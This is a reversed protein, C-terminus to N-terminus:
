ILQASRELRFRSVTGRAFGSRMAVAEERRELNRHLSVFRGYLNDRSQVRVVLVNQTGRELRRRVLRHTLQTDRPM